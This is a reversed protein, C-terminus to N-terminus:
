EDEEDDYVEEEEEEEGSADELEGDYESPVPLQSQVIAGELDRNKLNGIVIAKSCDMEQFFAKVEFVFREMSKKAAPAKPLIPASRKAKMENCINQILRTGSQTDQLVKILADGATGYSARWFPLARLLQDIFRAGHKVVQGLIGTRSQHRKSLAVLEKFASATRQFRAIMTDMEETDVMDGLQALRRGRGRGGGGRGRGCGRGGGRAGGGGSAAGSSSPAADSPELYALAQSALQEATAVLQEFVARYWVAFTAACLSPYDGVPDLQHKAAVKGEVKGLLNSALAHLQESPDKANFVWLALLRAIAPGHGKWCFGKGEEQAEDEGGGGWAAKLLKEANRSLRRRMTPVPGSGISGVGLQPGAVAAIVAACAQLEMLAMEFELDSLGSDLCSLKRVSDFSALALRELAEKGGGGGGGGAAAGPALARLVAAPGPGAAAAAAAAAKAGGGGGAAGLLQTFVRAASLGLERAALHVELMGATCDHGALMRSASGDVGLIGVTLLEPGGDPPARLTSAALALHQQLTPLLPELQRLLEAPTAAELSPPLAAATAATPGAAFAPRRARALVAKLKAHLDTSLHAVPVLLSLQARRGHMHGASAQMSPAANLAQLAPLELHRLKRIMEEVKQAAATATGENGAAGAAAASASAAAAAAAAAGPVIANSLPRALDPLQAAASGTAALHRLLAELQPLQMLRSLVKSQYDSIAQLRPDASELQTALNLDLATIQPAFCNVAERLWAVAHFLATLAALRSPGPLLQWAGTDAALAPDFLLIPCGLVGDISGLEGEAVGVAATLLRLLPALWMLKARERADGSAAIPLLRLAMCTADADLNLWLASELEPDGSAADAADKPVVSEAGHRGEQHTYEPLFGASYFADQAYGALWAALPKPLPASLEGGGGGSGVVGAGARARQQPEDGGEPAPVGALVADALRDLLFAMCAPAQQCQRLLSEARQTWAAQLEEPDGPGRGEAAAAYAAAERRLMALNGIIGIRKYTPSTHALAKTLTIHLEDEFRGGEGGGGARSGGGGGAAAAAPATLAAFMEFLQRLQADSFCELHDLTSALFAGFRALLPADRRALQLLAELAVDEEAPQGSGLHGHLAQLVEQRHPTSDVCAFLCRYLQAAAARLPAERARAWLAALASLPQWLDQAVANHDRVAGEIWRATAQGELLKKRLCQEAARARQVGAGGAPGAGTGASPMGGQQWLLLLVWLDIPRHLRPEEVAAIAALFGGGAADYGQLAAALERLVRAEAAVRGRGGAPGKQKQDPVGLRPDSPAACHLCGRLTAAVSQASSPTANSALFRVLAPLDDVEVVLLQEGLDQVAEAQLEPQLQMDGIADLVCAVFSVDEELLGMLKRLVGDHDEPSAVEPLFGVLQQRVHPPCVDMVDLVKQTLSGADAVAELWRLQGLILSPMSTGHSADEGADGDAGGYFSPLKELLADAVRSQVRQVNLAVRLLSDGNAYNIQSTVVMPLLARRLMADDELVEALGSMFEEQGRRSALEAELLRRLQRPDDVRLGESPPAAPAAASQASGLSGDTPGDLGSCGCRDLMAVLAALPGSATRQRKAQPGPPPLNSADRLSFDGSDQIAEEM